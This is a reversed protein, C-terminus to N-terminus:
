EVNGLPMNIALKLAEDKLSFTTQGTEVNVIMRLEGKDSTATQTNGDASWLTTKVGVAKLKIWKNNDPSYQKEEAWTLMNLWRASGAISVQATNSNVPTKPLEMRMRGTTKDAPSGDWTCKLPLKDTKDAAKGNLTFTANVATLKQLLAIAKETTGKILNAEGHDLKFECLAEEYHYLETEFDDRNKDVKQLFVHGTVNMMNYNILFEIEGSNVNLYGKVITSGDPKPLPDAYGEQYATTEATDDFFKIWGDGKYEDKEWSNLEMMPASATMSIPFPMTGPKIKDLYIQMKKEKELWTFRFKTPCGESLRTKDVNSMKVRQGLIIDGSLMEVAKKLTPNTDDIPVHQPEKGCSIALVLLTAMLICQLTTKM